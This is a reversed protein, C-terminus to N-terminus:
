HPNQQKQMQEMMQRKMMEPDIKTPTGTIHDKADTIVKILVMSNSPTVEKVMSMPSVKSSAWVDGKGDDKTWHDCLFSGAPVTIMETGVKHWKEMEDDIRSKQRMAPNMPMEVPPRGPQQFIMRHFQFDDKTVLMKGYTMAGTKQDGHGFELWFAEKGDVAEEGVVTMEMTSKTQNQETEYVAGSGVVPRFIDTIAPKKFLNMGMQARSATGIILCLGAAVLIIQPRKM